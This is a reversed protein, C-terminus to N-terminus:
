SVLNNCVYFCGGSISKRDDANGAWDANSYKTLVDNTDKNYWVSFDATTKVYKIIIKLAIM